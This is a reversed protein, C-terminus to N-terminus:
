DGKEEITHMRKAHKNVIPCPKFSNGAFQMCSAYIFINVHNHM